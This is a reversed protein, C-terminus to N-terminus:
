VWLFDGGRLGSGALDSVGRLDGAGPIVGLPFLIVFRVASPLVGGVGAPPLAAMFHAKVSDAEVTRSSDAGVPAAWPCPAAVAERGGCLLASCFHAWLCLPSGASWLCM